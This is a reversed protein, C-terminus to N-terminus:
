AEALWRRWAAPNTGADLPIGLQALAGPYRDEYVANVATAYEAQHLLWAAPLRRCRLTEGREGALEGDIVGRRLLGTVLETRERMRSNCSDIRTGDDPDIALLDIIRWSPPVAKVEVAAALWPLELMRAMHVRHNGNYGVRYLPGAWGPAMMLVIKPTFLKLTFADVDDAGLLGVAIDLPTEDRHGGFDGWVPHRTGVVLRTPVWMVTNAFGLHDRNDGSPLATLVNQHRLRQPDAANLEAAREALFGEADGTRRRLADRAEQVAAVHEAYAAGRRALLEAVSPGEPSRDADAVNSAVPMPSSPPDFVIKPPRDHFFWALTHAASAATAASGWFKWPAVDAAQASTTAVFGGHEDIDVTWVPTESSPARRMSALDADVLAARHLTSKTRIEEMTTGAELVLGDLSHAEAILEYAANIQSRLERASETIASVDFYIRESELLALTRHAHDSASLLAHWLYSWDPEDGAQEEPAADAEDIGHVSEALFHGIQAREDEELLHGLLLVLRGIATM